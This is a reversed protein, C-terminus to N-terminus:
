KKKSNASRTSTRPPAAPTLKASKKQSVPLKSPQSSADPPGPPISSSGPPARSTGPPARSTGPPLGTPALPESACDSARHFTKLLSEGVSAGFHNRVMGILLLDRERKSEAFLNTSFLELLFAGLKAFLSTMSSEVFSQCKQLLDEEPVPLLQSSDTTSAQSPLHSVTESYSRAPQLPYRKPIYYSGQTQHVDVPVTVAQLQSCPGAHSQQSGLATTRSVSLRQSPVRPSPHIVSVPEPALSSRHAHNRAEVFSMGQKRLNQITAAQQVLPCDRSSAIHAGGCNACLPAASPCSEKYHDGSCVLCRPKASCGAAMHGHRQCRFCRLPSEEFPRVPLKVLDYYVYPPLFTGVFAVKVSTSPGKSGQVFRNLRVVRDIATDGYQLCSPLAELDEDLSISNIVGWCVTETSAAPRYCRVAYKGIATSALLKAVGTDVATHFEVAVINRRPNNRVDKVHAFDILVKLGRSIALPDLTMKRSSAGLFGSLDQELQAILVVAASNDSRLTKNIPFKRPVVAPSAVLLPKSKKVLDSHSGLDFDSTDLERLRKGVVSRGNGKFWTGDLVSDDDMAEIEEQSQPSSRVASSPVASVQELDTDSVDEQLDAYRSVLTEVNVVSNISESM